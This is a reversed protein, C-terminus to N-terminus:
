GIWGDLEVARLDKDATQLGLADFVDPAIGTTRYKIDVVREILLLTDLM